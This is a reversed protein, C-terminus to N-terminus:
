WRENEDMDAPPTYKKRSEIKQLQRKIILVAIIRGADEGEKISLSEKIKPEPIDLRYLLQVLYAFDHLILHNLYDSLQELINEKALIEANMEATVQQIINTKETEKM